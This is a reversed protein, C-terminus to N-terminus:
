RRQGTLPGVSRVQSPLFECLLWLAQDEAQELLRQQEDLRPIRQELSARRADIDAKKTKFDALDLAEGIQSM